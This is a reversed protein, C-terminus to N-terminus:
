PSFVVQISPSVKKVTNEPYAVDCLPYFEGDLEPTFLLCSTKGKLHLAPLEAIYEKRKLEIQQFNIIQSHDRCLVPRCVAIQFNM